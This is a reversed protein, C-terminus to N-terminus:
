KWIRAKLAVRFFQKQHINDGESSKGNNKCVNADSIFPFKSKWSDVEDFASLEFALCPTQKHNM